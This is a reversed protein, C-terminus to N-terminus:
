GRDIVLTALRVQSLSQQKRIDLIARGIQNFCFGSSLRNAFSIKSRQQLCNLLANCMKACHVRDSWRLRLGSLRSTVTQVRLLSRLWQCCNRVPEFRLFLLGRQCRQIKALFNCRCVLANVMKLFIAIVSSRCLMIKVYHKVLLSVLMM